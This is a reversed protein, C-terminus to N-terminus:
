RIERVTKPEDDGQRLGEIIVPGEKSICKRQRDWEDKTSPGLIAGYKGAIAMCTIIRHYLAGDHKARLSAKGAVALVGKGYRARAHVNAYNNLLVEVASPRGLRAAIHLATEGKRNRRHVSAGADILLQLVEATIKREPKPSLDNRIFAMLPTNGRKDYDNPDVGVELLRKVTNVIYEHRLTTEVQRKRKLQFRDTDGEQAELRLSICSEALCHLGNRGQYKTEAFGASGKIITKRLEAHPHSMDAHKCLSELFSLHNETQQSRVTGSAKMTRLLEEINAERQQDFVYDYDSSAQAKIQSKVSRGRFDNKFLSSAVAMGARFALQMTYAHLWYQTLVHMPTQGFDDQANFDFDIGELTNLLMGMNEKGPHGFDLNDCRAFAAPNLVHMFTQGVVNKAHVNVGMFIFWSLIISGAGLSSALHLVTDGFDDVQGFDVDVPRHAFGAMIDKGSHWQEVLSRVFDHAKPADFQCFLCKDARPDGRCRNVCCMPRYRPNQALPAPDAALFPSVNTLTSFNGTEEHSSNELTDVRPPRPGFHPFGQLKFLLAVVPPQLNHEERPQKYNFDLSLPSFATNTTFQIAPESITSKLPALKPRRAEFLHRLPKAPLPKPVDEPGANPYKRPLYAPLASSELVEDDKIPILTSSSHHRTSISFESTDSTRKSFLSSTTSPNSPLSGVSLRKLFILQVLEEYSYERLQQGKKEKRENLRRRLSQLSEYSTRIGHAIGSTRPRQASEDLNQAFSELAELFQQSPTGSSGSTGTSYEEEFQSELAELNAPSPDDFPYSFNPQRSRNEHSREELYRRSVYSQKIREFMQKPDKPNPRLENPRPGLNESSKEQAIRKRCIVKLAGSKVLACKV